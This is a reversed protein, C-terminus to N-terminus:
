ESKGQPLTAPSTLYLYGAPGAGPILALAVTVASPREPGRAADEVMWFFSSVVLCLLDFTAIHATLSTSFSEAFGEARGRTMALAILYFSNLALLVAPVRSREWGDGRRRVVAAKSRFLILYPFLAFSGAFLTAFLFPLARKGDRYFFCAALMSYVGVMNFVFVDLADVKTSHTMAAVVYDWERQADFPIATSYAQYVLALLLLAHAARATNRGKPEGRADM